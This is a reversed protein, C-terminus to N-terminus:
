KRHDEIFEHFHVIMEQSNPAKKTRNRRVSDLRRASKEVEEVMQRPWLGSIRSVLLILNAMCAQSSIGKFNEESGALCERKLGGVSECIPAAPCDGDRKPLRVGPINFEPINLIFKLPDNM